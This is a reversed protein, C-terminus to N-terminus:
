CCVFKSGQKSCDNAFPVCIKGQSACVNNGIGTATIVSCENLEQLLNNYSYIPAKEAQAVTATPAVPISTCNGAYCLGNSSCPKNNCNPEACDALGNGDNDLGDGCFTELCENNAQCVAGPGCDDDVSCCRAGSPGNKGFCDSDGCDTGGQTSPITLPPNIVCPGCNLTGGCGDSVEGCDEAACTKPMCQKCVYNVCFPFDVPCVGCNLTGGCGDPMAGCNQPACAQLCQQLPQQAVQQQYVQQQYAEQQYQSPAAQGAINKNGFFILKLSNWFKGFASQPIEQGPLYAAEGILQLQPQEVPTLPGEYNENISLLADGDNDFGDNCTLEQGYECLSVESALLIQGNTNVTIVEEVLEFDGTIENESAFHGPRGNCDPDKCDVLNDGDNDLGDMCGNQYCETCYPDECDILGNHDNDKGDGCTELITAELIPLESKCFLNQAGDFEVQSSYIHANNARNLGLVFTNYDPEMNIPGQWKCSAGSICVPVMYLGDKSVSAHANDNRNLWLYANENNPGCDTGMGAHSCCVLRVNVDGATQYATKYGHANNEQNLYLVKVSNSGGCAYVYSVSCQLAEGVTIEEEILEFASASGALLVVFVLFLVVKKM